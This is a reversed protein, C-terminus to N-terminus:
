SGPVPQRGVELVRRAEEVMTRANAYGVVEAAEALPVWRCATIGEAEEPVPQGVHSRMLFFECYKHIRRGGLRFRWDITGLADAVELDLLGTEEAVERRAADPAEEGRELHGKPLGWRRYPDRILLVHPEGGIRRLVM